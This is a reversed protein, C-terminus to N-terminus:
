FCKVTIDTSKYHKLFHIVPKCNLIQKGVTQYDSVPIHATYYPKKKYKHYLNMHIFFYSRHIVLRDGNFSKNRYELVSDTLGLWLFTLIDHFIEHSGIKLMDDAKEMEKKMKGIKLLIDTISLPNRKM